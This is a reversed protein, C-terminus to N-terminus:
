RCVTTTGVPQCTQGNINRYRDLQGARNYQNGQTDQCGGADCNRLRPRMDRPPPARYAGPVGPYPYPYGGDIVVPDAGRESWRADPPQPTGSTGARSDIIVPGSPAPAAQQQRAAADAAERQQQNARATREAQAQREQEADEPSLKVPEQVSVTAARRTGAPCEGDTYSVKGAADACRLVEAGSSLCIGSLM